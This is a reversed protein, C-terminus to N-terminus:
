GHSPNKDAARVARIRTAVRASVNNITVDPVIAGVRGVAVISMELALEHQGDRLFALAQILATEANYRLHDRDKRM